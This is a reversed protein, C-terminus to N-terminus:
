FGLEATLAPQIAFHPGDPNGALMLGRAQIGISISESRFIDVGCVIGALFDPRDQLMAFGLRVGAYPLLWRHKSSQFNRTWVDWGTQAMFGSGSRSPESGCCARLLDVEVPLGRGRGNGRLRFTFGGGAYADTGSDRVDFLALPRVGIYMPSADGDASDDGPLQPKSPAALAIAVTARAIRDRLWTLRAKIRDRDSSAREIEREAALADATTTAKALLLKYREIAVDLNEIMVQLDREEPGADVAKVNRLEVRGVHVLRQAFADFQSSPVRVLLEIRADDRGSSSESDTAIQGDSAAVLDRVWKAAQRPDRVAIGFQAELEIREGTPRREGPQIAVPAIPAVPMGLPNNPSSSPSSSGGGAAFISSIAKVSHSLFNPRPGVYGSTFLGFSDGHAGRVRTTEQEEKTTNRRPTYEFSPREPLTPPAIPPPAEAARHRAASNCGAGSAVLFAAIAWRMRENIM